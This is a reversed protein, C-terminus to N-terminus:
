TGAARGGVVLRALADRDLLDGINEALFDQGLASQTLDLQQLVESALRAGVVM